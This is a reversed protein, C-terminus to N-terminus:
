HWSVADILASLLCCDAVHQIMEFLTRVAFKLTVSLSARKATIDIVKFVMYHHTVFFFDDLNEVLLLWTIGLFLILHRHLM